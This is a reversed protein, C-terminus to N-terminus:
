DQHLKNLLFYLQLSILDFDVYALCFHHRAYLCLFCVKQNLSSVPVQGCCKKSNKQSRDAFLVCGKRLLPQQLQRQGLPMVWIFLVKLEIYIWASIGSPSKLRYLCSAQGLNITKSTHNTQCHFYMEVAEVTGLIWHHSFM